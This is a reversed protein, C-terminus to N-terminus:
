RILATRRRLAGFAFISFGLGLLAMSQPEPSPPLPQDFTVNDISFDWPTPGAIPAASITVVSGTAPFSIISQGGSFNDALTVTASHGANDAVTYAVPTTNGNYVNLFFNTIAHPFTITIPNTYGLDLGQFGETGYVTTQDAPLNEEQSLVTGGTINVVGISTLVNLTQPAGGFLSPGSYSEFDIVEARGTGTLCFLFLAGSFLLRITNIRKSM